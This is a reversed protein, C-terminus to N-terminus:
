KNQKKCVYEALCIACPLLLNRRCICANLENLIFYAEGGGGGGKCLLLFSVVSRKLNLTSHLTSRVFVAAKIAPLPAIPSYIILTPEFTM